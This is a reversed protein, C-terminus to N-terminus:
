PAVFELATDAVSIIIWTGRDDATTLEYAPLILLTGDPQWYQALTPAAATAVAPDWWIQVKQPDGAPIDEATVPDSGAAEAVGAGDRAEAMPYIVGGGTMTPGLAAYKPDSSRLVATRAGVIPYAPVVELGAAFGSASVLGEGTFNFSWSLQTRQGDILQWATVWTSWDDSASEWELSTDLAADDSVGISSLLKRAEKVADRTSPPPLDPLCEAPAADPESTAADDAPMPEVYGCDWTRISPDWFSWSAMRDVSVWVSPADDTGVRWDGWEEKVPEGQVGFTSALLAALASRNVGEDVLRYGRATGAENPLSPAPLLTVGYGPYIMSASAADVKEGSADAAQGTMGGVSALPPSAAGVVPISEEPASAAPVDVVPATSRGLAMGGLVAGALLVIGAAISGSWIWGRRQRMSVVSEDHSEALVRARTATLDVDAVDRAPDAARLRDDIADEGPIQQDFGDDSM